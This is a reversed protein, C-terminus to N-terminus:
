ITRGRTAVRYAVALPHPQTTQDCRGGFRLSAAHSDLCSHAPGSAHTPMLGLADRHHSGADMPHVACGDVAIQDLRAIPQREDVGAEGAHPAREHRREVLQPGPRAVDAADEQRVPVEVVHTQAVAEAPVM